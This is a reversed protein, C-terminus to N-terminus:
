PRKKPYKLHNATWLWLLIIGALGVAVTFALQPGILNYLLVLGISGAPAGITVTTSVLGLVTGTLNPAVTATFLAYMKPDLKGTCFATVFQTLLILNINPWLLLGLYVSGIAITTLLTLQSFNLQDLWTRRSVGGLVSGVVFVLNTLLIATAYSLGFKPAATIFYLNLVTDVSMALINLLMIIGLFSIAPLQTTQEIARKALHWITNLSPQKSAAVSTMITPYGIFLCAAALLFTVGNIVGALAYNHTVAIILVGLSQGVPAMLTGVSQNIGFAQQRDAAVLRKQVIVNFLSGGYNGLLTALVNLTVVITFSLVTQQNIILALRFYLLAQGLKTGILWTAKATTRDALDGMIINLAYPAITAISVISVFLKPQVFGKAYTLLIINFLSMGLTAFCNASALTQLTHNKLITLMKTVTKRTLLPM